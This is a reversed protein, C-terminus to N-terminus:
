PPVYANTRLGIGNPVRERPLVIHISVLQGQVHWPEGDYEPREPTLDITTVKVIVQIGIDWFEKQLDVSVSDRIQSHEDLYTRPARKEPACYSGPERKILEPDSHNM